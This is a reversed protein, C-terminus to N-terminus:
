KGYFIRFLIIVVQMLLQSNMFADSSGPIFDDQSFVKNLSMVSTPTSENIYKEENIYKRQQPTSHNDAILSELQQRLLLITQQMEANESVQVATNVLQPYVIWKM